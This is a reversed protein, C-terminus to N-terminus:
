TNSSRQPAVCTHISALAHSTQLIVCITYPHHVSTSPHPVSPANFIHTSPACITLLQVRILSLHHVSPACISCPHPLTAVSPSFPAYFIHVIPTCNTCPDTVITCLHPHTLCLHHTSSTRPHPVSPSYNHASPACIPYLHHSSPASFEHLEFSQKAGSNHAHAPTM